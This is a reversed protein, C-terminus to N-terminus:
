SGFSLMGGEESVTSWLEIPRCGGELAWATWMVAGAARCQRASLCAAALLLSGTSSYQRSAESRSFHAVGGSSVSLGLSAFM